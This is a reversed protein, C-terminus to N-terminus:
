HHSQFARSSILNTIIFIFGSAQLMARFCIFLMTDM